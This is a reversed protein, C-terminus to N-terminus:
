SVNGNVVCVSNSIFLITAVGRTALSVSNKDADTGGIYATTITLSVTRAANTNNFVSVVDGTSFVGNPVDIGGGTGLEVFQGVDSVTLTYTSTKASGTRPIARVNGSVDSIVGSRGSVDTTTGVLLNGSSTIRARETAGTRLSLYSNGDVFMATDTSARGISGLYTDDSRRLVIHSNNNASANSDRTNLAQTVSGSSNFQIIAQENGVFTTTNLQWRASADLTMAQTFSIANGATGSPATSWIHQGSNQNYKSAFGNNVYKETGDSFANQTITMNANNFNWIAGAPTQLAKQGSGWASPTVGLGLNGSSDLRMRETNNTAFTLQGNASGDLVCRIYGKNTTSSLFEVGGLTDSNIPSDSGLELMGRNPGYVTLVRANADFGTKNPATTGVGLAGGATLTMAQTFSITNGATGSAAVQWAFGANTSAGVDFRSAPNGSTTYVYNSGNYYHNTGIKLDAGGNQGAIYQGTNALQIPVFPSGWASPTVGLGLNGSSDFRGAEAANTIFILNSAAETGMVMSGTQAMVSNGGRPANAGSGILIYNSASSSDAIRTQGSVHLKAAPSSTGIGVNGSSTALSANNTVTLSATTLSSPNTGLEVVASSSNMTFMRKDATNVAVEAGGALNTLNATSPVASATDSKKLLITPM